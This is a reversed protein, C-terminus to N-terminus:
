NEDCLPSFFFLILNTSFKEEMHLGDSYTEQLRLQFGERGGEEEGGCGRGVEGVLVTDGIFLAYMRGAEDEASKNTLGAFGVNVNFVMGREARLSCKPNILLSGERFEIGTAFSCFCSSLVMFVGPTKDRSSHTGPPTGHGVPPCFKSQISTAEDPRAIPNGRSDNETM